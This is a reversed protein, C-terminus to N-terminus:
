EKLWDFPVPPNWQCGEVDHLPGLPQVNYEALNHSQVSVKGMGPVDIEVERGKLDMRAQAAISLCAPGTLNSRLILNAKIPTLVEWGVPGKSYPALSRGVYGFALIVAFTLAALVLLSTEDLGQPRRSDAQM